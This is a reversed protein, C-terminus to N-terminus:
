PPEIKPTLFSNTLNRVAALFATSDGKKRAESLMTTITPNFASNRRVPTGTELPPMSTNLNIVPPMINRKYTGISFEL